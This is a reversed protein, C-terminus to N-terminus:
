LTAAVDAGDISKRGGFNKSGMVVHRLAREPDNNTLLLALTTKFASLEKWRRLCYDIAAVLGSSPLHGFSLYM